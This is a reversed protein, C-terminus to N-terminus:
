TLYRAFADTFQSKLYGKVTAYGVRITHSLVGFEKLRNAIQRPSISAGRNYTAWPKEPDDCLRQILEASAMRDLNLRNFIEEIDQLLEVGVSSSENSSSIMTAAARSLTPWEGGAIDAIALLPEWNDQARDNLNDPLAPRAQQINEAYDKAFRALKATLTHFLDAEAHRLREIPENALKRRLELLIARDMVTDSLHGIGALAKAGWVQFATPTFDDGVVRIIKASDRTHGCNIIGRLEENDRMFTDAEDILLTPRWHDISRFLAAPTINSASLPRNVLRGMLFLLQSKGCRKEPATIIALPAVTVVDIFWTMAIWLTAALATEPACIIFRTITDRIATLLADPQIPEPWPEVEAFPIQQGHQQSARAAKVLIDLTAPRVHLSKATSTRIRDYDLPSLEALKAIIEQDSETPQADEQAQAPESPLRPLALLDAVTAAPHATLWDVADGSTPLQLQTVDIMEVLSGLAELKARVHQGYHNGAEDHDPWIVCQRNALLQWDANEASTASGSTIACCPYRSDRQGITRNLVDAPYEGEVIFIVAHPYQTLLHLGYLPKAQPNLTPPEVLRYRGKTDRYMPRIWKEGSSKKLRIRWYLVQNNEDTYIHLAQSRYGQALAKAALRRAAQEPTEKTSIM